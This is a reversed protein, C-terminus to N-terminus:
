LGNRLFFSVPEVPLRNVDFSNPITVVTVRKDLMDVSKSLIGYYICIGHCLRRQFAQPFSLQLFPLSCSNEKVVKCHYHNEKNEDVLIKGMDVVEEEDEEGNNAESRSKMREQEEGVIKLFELIQEEVSQILLSYGNDAAVCSRMEQLLDKPIKNKKPSPKKKNMKNSQLEYLLEQEKEETIELFETFLENGM